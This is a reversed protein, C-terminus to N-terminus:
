NCACKWGASVLDCSVYAVPRHNMGSDHLSAFPRGVEEIGKLSFETVTDCGRPAEAGLRYSNGTGEYKNSARTISM